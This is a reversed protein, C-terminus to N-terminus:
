LGQHQGPASMYLDAFFEPKCKLLDAHLRLRALYYHAQVRGTILVPLYCFHQTYVYAGYPAM